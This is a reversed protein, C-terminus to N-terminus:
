ARRIRRRGVELQPHRRVHPWVQARSVLGLRDDVQLLEEGLLLQIALLDGPHEVGRGLERHPGEVLDGAGGVGIGAGGHGLPLGIRRGVVPALLVPRHELCEHGPGGLQSDALGIADLGVDSM